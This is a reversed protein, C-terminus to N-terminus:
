MFNSAVTIMDKICNEHYNSTETCCWFLHFNEARFMIESFGTIGCIAQVIASFGLINHDKKFGDKWIFINYHPVM